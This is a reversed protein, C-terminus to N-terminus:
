FIHHSSEASTTKCDKKNEVYKGTFKNKKIKNNEEFM